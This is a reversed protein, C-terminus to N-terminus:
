ASDDGRTRKRSEAAEQLDFLTPQFRGHAEEVQIPYEGSFCADCFGRKMSREVERLADLSLYSLSDAGILDRIQEVTQNAAILEGKNPTDIGYYCPGTTPPSSV